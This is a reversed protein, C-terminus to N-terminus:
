RLGFQINTSQSFFAYQRTEREPSKPVFFHSKSECFFSLFFFYTTLEKLEVTERNQVQRGEGEEASWMTQITQSRQEKKVREKEGTLSFKRKGRRYRRVANKIRRKGKSPEEKGKKRKGGATFSLPGGGIGQVRNKNGDNKETPGM